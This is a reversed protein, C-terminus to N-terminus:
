DIARVQKICNDYMAAQRWCTLTDSQRQLSQRVTRSGGVVCRPRYEYNKSFSAEVPRQKRAFLTYVYLHAIARTTQALLNSWSINGGWDQLVLTWAQAKEQNNGYLWDSEDTEDRMDNM